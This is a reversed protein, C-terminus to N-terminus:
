RALGLRTAAATAEALWDHAHEPPPSWSSSWGLWQLAVQLRCCDLEIPDVNGYAAIIAEREEESWAGSSLAVLDFLGPGVGAMEWDVPAIREAAVLVNSAYFEGHIFTVPMRCLTEVVTWHEAVISDLASGVLRHARRIWSCFYAADYNILRQSAPPSAAFLSHFRRLWRAVTKWQELDGVQWLETGEVKELLLWDDGYAFISPTGLAHPALLRYAEIERGPDDLVAPKARRARADLADPRLDKRLLLRQTGDSLSVELEELPHSTTYPYSRRGLVKIVTTEGVAAM